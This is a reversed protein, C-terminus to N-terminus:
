QKDPSDIDANDNKKNKIKKINETAVSAMRGM